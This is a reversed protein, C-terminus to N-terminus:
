EEADPGSSPGTATSIQRTPDADAITEQADTLIPRYSGVTSRTSPIEPGSPTTLVHAGATM